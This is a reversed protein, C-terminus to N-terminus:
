LLDCALVTLVISSELAFCLHVPNQREYVHNARSKDVGSAWIYAGKTPKSLFFACVLTIEGARACREAHIDGKSEGQTM